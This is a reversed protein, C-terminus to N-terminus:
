AEDVVAKIPAFSRRHIASVGLEALAARHVATGYGKHQAFAYGPYEGDLEVMIRDRTVKAVCSAFAITRSRRDGRIIARQNRGFDPLAFADSLVFEPPPHLSVAADRLAAANVYGIGRRDIDAPPMIAVAVEAASQLLVKVIVAREAPSLEKSDNVRVGARAIASSLKRREAPDCPLVVAAAVIPGAWAGRGAEDVGAVRRL